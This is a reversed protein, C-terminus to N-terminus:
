ASASVEAAGLAPVEAVAHSAVRRARRRAEELADFEHIWAFEEAFKAVKANRQEWEPGEPVHLAHNGMWSARQIKRTRPKRLSEYEDLAVELDAGNASILEALTIADEITVNAGQGHHPLM